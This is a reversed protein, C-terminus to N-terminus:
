VRKLSSLCCSRVVVVLENSSTVLIECVCWGSASQRVLVWVILWTFVARNVVPNSSGRCCGSGAGQVCAQAAELRGASLGAWLLASNPVGCLHLQAGVGTAGRHPRQHQSLSPQQLLATGRHQLAARPAGTSGTGQLQKVLTTLSEGVSGQQAEQQASLLADLQQQLQGAACGAATPLERNGLWGTVTAILNELTDAPTFSVGQRLAPVCVLGASHDHLVADRQQQQLLGSALLSLLPALGQLQEAWLLCCRGFIVLSPLFDATQQASQSQECTASAVRLLGVAAYAAALCCRGPTEGGWCLQCDTTTSSGVKLVTSLLSYLQRQERALAGPGCLGMHWAFHAGYNGTVRFLLDCACIGIDWACIRHVTSHQRARTLFRLVVENAAGVEVLKAAVPLVPAAVAPSDTSSSSSSENRSPSPCMSRSVRAVESLLVLLQRACTSSPELKSGQPSSSPGLTSGGPSSALGSSSSGHTRTVEAAAAAAAAATTDAPIPHQQHTLPQQHQLQDALQLVVALLEQVCAAALRAATHCHSLQLSLNVSLRSAILLVEVCVAYCPYQQLLNQTTPSLLSSDCPLLVTPLLLGLQQQYQWQQQQQQQRGATSSAGQQALDTAAECSSRCLSAAMYLRIVALEHSSTQEVWTVVEPALGLLQLLQLEGAARSSHSSNDGCGTRQQECQQNGTGGSSSCRSGSSSGQTAHSDSSIAKRLGDATALAMVAVCPLMPTSQWLQQLSGCAEPLGSTLLVLLGSVMSKMPTDHVNPSLRQMLTHAEQQPAVEQVHQVVASLHQLSATLLQM